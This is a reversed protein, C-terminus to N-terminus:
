QKDKAQQGVDAHSSMRALTLAAGTRRVDVETLSPEEVSIKRVHLLERQFQAFVYILFVCAAMALTTFIIPFM